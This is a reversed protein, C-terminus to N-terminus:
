NRFLNVCIIGCVSGVILSFFLDYIISVTFSFEGNLISFLFFSAITYLVAIILGKILGNERNNKLCLFCGLFISITKIIQNVIKIGMDSIEFFRLSLAFILIGVLSFCVSVLVGKLVQFINNKNKLVSINM